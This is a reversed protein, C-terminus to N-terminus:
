DVPVIICYDCLDKMAGGDFGAFGITTGNHNNVHEIAKNLNQSWEEGKDKGVGGHVSFAILIDGADIDYNQLQYTYLNEWGEDNIIATTLPPNENLSIATIGCMKFLDCAMHSATGASGGNGCLFVRGNGNNQIHKLASMIKNMDKQTDKLKEGVAKINNLYDVYVYSM